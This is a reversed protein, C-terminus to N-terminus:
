GKTQPRQTAPSAQAKTADPPSNPAQASQAAQASAKAAADAKEKAARRGAAISAIFSFLAGVAICVAVALFLYPVGAYLVRGIPSDETATRFTDDFAGAFRVMYSTVVFGNVLGLGLGAVRENFKLTEKRKIFLMGGGFGVLLVTLIFIVASSAMLFPAIEGNVRSALLEALPRAWFDVLSAGLLAGALVVGGRRIDALSGLVGFVGIIVAAAVALAMDTLREDNEVTSVHTWQNGARM